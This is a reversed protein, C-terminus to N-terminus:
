FVAAENQVIAIPLSFKKLFVGLKDAQCKWTHQELVQKRALRGLEAFDCRAAHAQRIADALSAPSADPAFFAYPADELVNRHAPIATVIVPKGCSLYEFLKIPSSTNWVDCDPFPLIGVDSGQIQAPVQEHSITEMLTIREQLGLRDIWEIAGAERLSSILTLHVDLDRVLDIAQILRDLGRSVSIIGGHYILRFASKNSRLQGQGPQFLDANVGSSWIASLHLPLNFKKICFNRMEDTIYTIGSFHLSAYQLIKEFTKWAPHAQRETPLTRVDLVVKFGHKRSSGTVTKLIKPNTNCNIVVVDPSLRVLSQRIVNGMLLRRSIKRFLGRGFQPFYMVPQDCIKIDLPKDRWGTLFSVDFDPSINTLMEILTVRNVSKDFLKVAIWFLKPKNSVDM